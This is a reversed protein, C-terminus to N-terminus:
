ENIIEKGMWVGPKFDFYEYLRQTREPDIGIDGANIATAGIHFSWQEFEKMLLRFNDMNRHEDIIFMFAINSEVINKNWPLTNIYGAVFGVPRSNHYLNFWCHDYHSAYYRITEVMSNEDYQEGIKPLKEVAEDRYYHFLNVTVDFEIPMMKRVIM